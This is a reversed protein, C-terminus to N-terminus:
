RQSFVETFYDVLTQQLDADQLAAGSNPNLEAIIDNVCWLGIVAARTESSAKAPHYDNATGRLPLSNIIGAKVANYSQPLPKSLAFVVEPIEQILLNTDRPQEDEIIILSVAAMRACIAIVGETTIPEAAAVSAQVCCALTLAAVLNRGLGNM